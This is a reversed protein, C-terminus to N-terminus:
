LICGFALMKELRLPISLIAEVREFSTASTPSADPEEDLELGIVRRLFHRFPLQQATSVAPKILITPPPLLGRPSITELPSLPDAPLEAPSPCPSNEAPTSPRSLSDVTKHVLYLPLIFFTSVISVVLLYM